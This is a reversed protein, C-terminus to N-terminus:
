APKEPWVIDRPFGPQQPVDLLAQRYAAWKQRDEDSLSAWRLANSVLPDVERNLIAERHTRAGRALEEDTPVPEVYPAFNDGVAARLSVNDIMAEPDGDIWLYPIWGYNPHNIEMDIMSNDASKSVANRYETIKM